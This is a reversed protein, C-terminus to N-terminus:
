FGRGISQVKNTNVCWGANFALPTGPAAVFAIPTRARNLLDPFSQKWQRYHAAVQEASLIRNYIWVGQIDSTSYGAGDGAWAGISNKWSASAGQWTGTETNTFDQVGDLYGVQAGSVWTIAVHRWVNLGPSSTWATMSFAYAGFAIKGTDASAESLGLLMQSFSGDLQRSLVQGFGTFGSDQSNSTWRLTLIATAGNGLGDFTTAPLAVYQSSGGSFSVVRYGPVGTTGVTWVPANTFTGLRGREGPATIDWLRNGPTWGPLDMWWGVLGRNLPNRWDVPNTLSSRGLVV